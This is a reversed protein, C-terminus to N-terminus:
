VDDYDESRKFSIVVCKEDFPNKFNATHEPWNETASNILARAANKSRSLMNKVWLLNM